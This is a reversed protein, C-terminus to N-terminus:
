SIAWLTVTMILTLKNYLVALAYVPNNCAIEMFGENNNQTMIKTEDLQPSPSCNLVFALLYYMNQYSLKITQIITVTM